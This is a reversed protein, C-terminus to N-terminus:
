KLNYKDINKIVMSKSIGLLNAIKNPTINQDLLRKIKFIEIDKKVDKLDNVISNVQYNSLEYKIALETISSGNLYEKRIYNNHKNDKRTLCRSLNKNVSINEVLLQLYAEELNEKAIELYYNDIYAKNDSVYKKLTIEDM